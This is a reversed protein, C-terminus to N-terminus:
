MARGAETLWTLFSNFHFILILGLGASLIWALIEIVIKSCTGSM